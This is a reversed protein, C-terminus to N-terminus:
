EKFGTLELQKEIKGKKGIKKTLEKWSEELRMFFQHM